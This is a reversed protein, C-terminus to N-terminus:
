QLRRIGASMLRLSAAGGRIGLWCLATAALALAGFVIFLLAAFLAMAAWTELLPKVDHAILWSSALAGAIIAAWCITILWWRGRFLRNRWSKDVVIVAPLTAVMALMLIKFTMMEYLRHNITLWAMFAMVGVVAIGMWSYLIRRALPHKFKWMLASTAIVVGNAFLWTMFTQKNPSSFFGYNMLGLTAVGAVMANPVSYHRLRDGWGAIKGVLLAPIFPACWAIDGPLGTVLRLFIKAAIVDNSDGETRYDDIEDRLNALMEESHAKGEESAFVVYLWNRITMIRMVIPLAYAKLVLSILVRLALYLLDTIM